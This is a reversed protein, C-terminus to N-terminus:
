GKTVFRLRRSPKFHPRKSASKHFLRGFGRCERAEYERMTFVGFGRLEVRTGSAVVSILKKLFVDVIQAAQGKTLDLEQALHDRFSARNWTDGEVALPKKTM